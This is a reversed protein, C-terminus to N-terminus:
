ASICGTSPTTPSKKPLVRSIFKLRAITTTVVNTQAKALLKETSTAM